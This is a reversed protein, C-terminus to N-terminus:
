PAWFDSSPGAYDMLDCYQRQKFRFRSKKKVFVSGFGVTVASILVTGVTIKILKQMNHITPLIVM